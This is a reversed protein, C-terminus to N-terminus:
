LGYKEELEALPPIGFEAREEDTITGDVPALVERGADTDIYRHTGYKQQGTTYYQYRDITQAVLMRAAEHGKVLSSAALQHGLYYNEPSACVIEEGCYKLSTHNLIMAAHFEDEATAVAGEAILEFVRLRRKADGPGMPEDDNGTRAEQDDAFM